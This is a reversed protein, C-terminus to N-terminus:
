LRIESLPKISGGKKMDFHAFLLKWGVVCTNKLVCYKTNRLEM